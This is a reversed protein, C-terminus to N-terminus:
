TSCRNTITSRSPSILHKPVTKGEKVSTVTVKDKGYQAKFDGMQNRTEGRVASFNDKRADVSTYQQVDAMPVVIFSEIRWLDKNALKATWIMTGNEAGVQTKLNLKMVEGDSWPAPQNALPEAKEVKVQAGALRYKFSTAVSGGAPVMKDVLLETRGNVQRRPLDTPNTELLEAGQPLKFIEIRRVQQGASPSHNMYYQFTDKEGPVQRILGKM